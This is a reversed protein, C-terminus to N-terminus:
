STQWFGIPGGLLGGCLLVKHQLHKFSSSMRSIERVALTLFYLISDLIAVLDSLMGLHDGCLPLKMSHSTLHPGRMQKSKFFVFHRVLHGCCYFWFISIRYYDCSVSGIHNVYFLLDHCSMFSPSYFSSNFISTTLLITVGKPIFSTMNSWFLLLKAMKFSTM